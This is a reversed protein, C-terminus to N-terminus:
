RQQMEDNYADKIIGAVLVSLRVKNTNAENLLWRQTKVDLYRLSGKSVDGLSGWRKHM